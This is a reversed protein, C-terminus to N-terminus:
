QYQRIFLSDVGELSIVADNQYMYAMVPVWRYQGDEGKAVQYFYYDGFERDSNENLKLWGTAAYSYKGFSDAVYLIEDLDSPQSQMIWVAMLTCDYPLIEYIGPNKGTVSRVEDYVRWYDSSEPQAVNFSVATLGTINAFEAATENMLLAPNLAVLDMGEWHVQQLNPYTSAQALIDAIEDFSVASIMVSDHGGEEILPRVAADLENLVDTFDSTNQPYMITKAVHSCFHGGEGLVSGYLDDRALVVVNVEGGDRELVQHRKEVARLLNMDDPCLRVMPSGPESLAISSSPNISIIGERHLIPLIGSVEESSSPLVIVDVGQAILEEGAAAAGEKTGDSAATILMVSNDMGAKKYSENLDSIALNISAKIGPALSASNGTEDIIAGVIVQNEASVVGTMALTLLVGILVATIKM